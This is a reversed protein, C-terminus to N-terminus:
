AFRASSCPLVLLVKRNHELARGVLVYVVPAAWGLIRETDTGGLILESLGLSNRM